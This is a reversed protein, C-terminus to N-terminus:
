SNCVVLIYMIITNYQIPHDNSGLASRGKTVSDKSCIDFMNSCLLYEWKHKNLVLEEQFAGLPYGVDGVLLLIVILLVYIKM